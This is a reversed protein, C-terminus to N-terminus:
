TAQPRAVSSTIPWPEWEPLPISVRKWHTGGDATVALGWGQELFVEAWAHKSDIVVPLYQGDLVQTIVPTWTQGADASKYLSGGELLWWHLADQYSVAGGYGNAYPRAPIYKWSDGGDFSTFAYQSGNQFQVFAEVGAGPLLEIYVGGLTEAPLGGPPQPIDHRQWTRGGDASTYAHPPGVPGNAGIWGETANRFGVSGSYPPPDPLQQWTTGADTTAYLNLSLTQTTVLWGHRADAFTVQFFAADPHVVVEWHAGGDVTRFIQNPPGVAVFGHTRDLFKITLSSLAGYATRGSLQRQWHRAGDDTRYVWFQGTSPLHKTSVVVAWALSPTVFDYGIQQNINTLAPSQVPQVPQVPRPASALDSHLYAVSAAVIATVALAILAVARPARTSHREIRVTDDLLSVRRM